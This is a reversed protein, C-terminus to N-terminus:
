AATTVGRPGEREKEEDLFRDSEESQALFRHEPGGILSGKERRGGISM